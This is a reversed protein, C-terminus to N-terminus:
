SGSLDPGSRNVSDLIANREEQSPINEPDVGSVEEEAGAPAQEAQETQETQGSEVEAAQNVDGVNGESTSGGAEFEAGPSAESEQAAPQNLESQSETDCASVLLALLVLISAALLIRKVHCNMRRRRRSVLVV